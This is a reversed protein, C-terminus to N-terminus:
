SGRLYKEEAKPWVRRFPRIGEDHRFSKLRRAFDVACAAAEAPNIQWAFCGEAPIHLIGLKPWEIPPAELHEWFRQFRELAAADGSTRARGEREMVTYVAVQQAFDRKLSRGTKTDLVWEEANILLHLDLTGAVLAFASFVTHEACRYGPAVQVRHAEMWNLFYGFRRLAAASGTPLDPDPAKGTLHQEILAHVAKGLTSTEDRHKEAADTGLDGYHKLLSANSKTAGLVRTVRDCILIRGEHPILYVNDDNSSSKRKKKSAPLPTTMPM